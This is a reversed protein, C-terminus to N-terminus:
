GCFSMALRCIRAIPPMIARSSFPPMVAPFANMSPTLSAVRATTQAIGFSQNLMGGAHGVGGVIGILPSPVTKSVTQETERNSEFIVVIDTCVQNPREVPDNGLPRVGVHKGAPSGASRRPEVV